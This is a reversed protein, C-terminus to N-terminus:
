RRKKGKKLWSAVKQNKMLQGFTERERVIEYKEGNVLVECARPRMNFNSSMAFGYAGANMIALLDGEEIKPLKRDRALLDGSECIPGAISYTEQPPAKEKGVVVVEHYAGYMTPRILTNFGADVGVFKKFPTEKLTNVRTLLICADCVIYRGPETYLFPEGLGSEECRAQIIETIARAFGEVDLPKDDPKYPVGLGGGIDIFSFDIGVNKAVSAAINMLKGVARLFPSYDLIGSGIHMHIGFERVGAQKARTYARVADSEWIGFKSEKGGTITHDHHGAGVEPNIRFSIKEPVKIALLRELQSLSDVNITIGKDLLFRIEDNRVSTGTFMIRDPSFGALLAAEVEFPSVADICAGESELIRLVSINGNAKMAYLLRFKPYNKEFANKVCRFNERIRQEDIVYIPTGFEEALKECDINGIRM